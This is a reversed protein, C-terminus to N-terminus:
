ASYLSCAKAQTHKRPNTKTEEVLRDEGVLAINPGIPKSEAVRSYKLVENGRGGILYWRRRGNWIVQLSRMAWLIFDLSRSKQSVKFDLEFSSEGVTALNNSKM